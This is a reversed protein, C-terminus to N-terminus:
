RSHPRCPALVAGPRPVLEVWITLPPLCPSMSAVCPCRTGSPPAGAAPRWVPTAVCLFAHPMAAAPDGCPTLPRPCKAVGMGVLPEPATGCEGRERKKLNLLASVVVDEHGPPATSRLVPCCAFAVHCPLPTERGHEVQVTSVCVYDRRAGRAGGFRCSPYAFLWLRRPPPPRAAVPRRGPLCPPLSPLASQLGTRTHQGRGGLGGGGGGRNCVCVAPWLPFPCM